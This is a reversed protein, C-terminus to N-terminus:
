RCSAGLSGRKLLVRHLQPPLCLRTNNMYMYNHHLLQVSSYMPWLFCKVDVKLTNTLAITSKRESTVLKFFFFFFLTPDTYRIAPYKELSFVKVFKVTKHSNAFIKETFNQPTTGKPAAFALAIQM